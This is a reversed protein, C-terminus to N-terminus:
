TPWSISTLGPITELSVSPFSVHMGMKERITESNASCFSRCYATGPPSMPLYRYLLVLTLYEHCAVVLCAKRKMHSILNQQVTFSNKASVSNLCGSTVQSSILHRAKYKLLQFLFQGSGKCLPDYPQAPGRLLQLVARSRQQAQFKTNEAEVNARRVCPLLCSLRWLLHISVDLQHRKNNPWRM